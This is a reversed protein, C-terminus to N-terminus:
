RESSQILLGEPNGQIHDCQSALCGSPRLSPHQWKPRPSYEPAPPFSGSPCVSAWLLISRTFPETPPSIPAQGLLLHYSAVLASCLEVPSAWLASQCPFFLDLQSKSDEEIAQEELHQISKAHSQHLSDAQSTEWTEADRIAMLAFPKLKRSPTPAAPSLKRPPHPASPRLKRPLVPM